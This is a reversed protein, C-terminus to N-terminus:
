KAQSPLLTPKPVAGNSGSGYGMRAGYFPLNYTPRAGPNARDDADPSSYIRPSVPFGFASYGNTVYPVTIDIRTGNSRQGESRVTPTRDAWAQGALLTLLIAALLRKMATM